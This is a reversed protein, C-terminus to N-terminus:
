KDTKPQGLAEALPALEKQYRRWYGLRGAHIPARVQVSSATTVPQRNATIDQVGAQSSLGCFTLLRQASAGPDAVLDEYQVDLVRGPATADLHTMWRTTNRHHNAMDAFAYSYEYYGPAFLERLCGFCADMPQKRVHVIKANPLAALAIGALVLNGPHKDTHWRRGATRWQTSAMYLAGVQRPDTSAMKQASPLDLFAECFDDSAWKYAMRLESLEGCNTVDVHNGLIREVLTTGSRPLGVIFIPIREDHQTPAVAPFSSQAEIICDFIADETAADYRSTAKRAAMARKLVPWARQTDGAQDLERFLAYHLAASNTGGAAARAIAQELGTIRAERGAELDLSALALHAHANNPDIRLADEYAEASRALDGLFKHANGRLFSLMTLRVGQADAIDLWRLASAPDDLMMLQEIAGALQMPNTQTAIPLRALLAAATEYQGSSILGSSVMLIEHPTSDVTLCRASERAHAVARRFSRRAQYIRALMWHAGWFTPARALLQQCLAQAQDPDSRFAAEANRWLAASAPDLAHM